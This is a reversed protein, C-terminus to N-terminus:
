GEGENESEVAEEVKATSVLSDKDTHCALCQDVENESEAVTPSEITNEQIPTTSASIGLLVLVVILYMIFQHKRM